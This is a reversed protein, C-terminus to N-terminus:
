RFVFNKLEKLYPNGQVFHIIEWDQQFSLDSIVGSISPSSFFLASGKTFFSVDVEIKHELISLIVEELSSKIKKTRSLLAKENMGLVFVLSYPPIKKVIFLYVSNTNADKAYCIRERHAESIALSNAFARKVVAPTSADEIVYYRSSEDMELLNSGKAFRFISSGASSSGLMSNILAILDKPAEAKPIENPYKTEKESFSQVDDTKEKLPVKKEEYGMSSFLNLLYDREGGILLRRKKGILMFVKNGAVDLEEYGEVKGIHLSIVDSLTQKESVAQQLVEVSVVPLSEPSASNRRVQESFSVLALAILFADYDLFLEAVDSPIRLLIEQGFHNPKEEEKLLLSNLVAADHGLLAEMQIALKYPLDWHAYNKLVEKASSLMELLIGQKQLKLCLLEFRDSLLSVIDYNNISSDYAYEKLGLITGIRKKIDLYEERNKKSDLLLSYASDIRAFLEGEVIRDRLSMVEDSVNRLLRQLDFLKQLPKENKAFSFRGLEEGISILKSNLSLWESWCRKCEEVVAGWYDSTIGKAIRLGNSPGLECGLNQNSWLVSEIVRIVNSARGSMRLVVCSASNVVSMSTRDQSVFLIHDGKSLLESVERAILEIRAKADLSIDESDLMSDLDLPLVASDSVELKEATIERQLEM